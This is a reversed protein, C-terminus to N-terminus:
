RHVARTGLSGTGGDGRVAKARRAGVGTFFLVNVPVAWGEGLM